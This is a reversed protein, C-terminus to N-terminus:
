AKEQGRARRRATSRRARAAIEARSPRPAPFPPQVRRYWYRANDLDGELTHVIGHLWAALTPSTTSSSRTPRRGTARERPAGRRSGSRRLTEPRPCRRAAAILDTARADQVMRILVRRADDASTVEEPFPIREAHLRGGTRIRLRFGLRDVAVM